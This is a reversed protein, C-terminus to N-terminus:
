FIPESVGARDAIDAETAHAYGREAIERVTADVIRARRHFAQAAVPMDALAVVGDSVGGDRQAM